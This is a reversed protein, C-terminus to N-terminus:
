QQASFHSLVKDRSEVGENPEGDDHFAGGNSGSGIGEDGIGEDGIRAFCYPAIAAVTKDGIGSIRTLAHLNAYGGHQHRDALIRKATAVGIGPLLTLERLGAQNIDLLDRPEFTPSAIPDSQTFCFAIAFGLVGLAGIWSALRNLQPSLIPPVPPRETM